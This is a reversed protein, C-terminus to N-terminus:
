EKVCRASYGDPKTNYYEGVFNTWSEMSRYYATGSNRETVTWWYGDKGAHNFSADVGRDGGPLASFGTENTGNSNNYWGRTSKLMRGATEQGGAAAVLRNWDATDPLRWGISQCAAKAADYTYLRGYTNCNSIDDAYCWSGSSAPYNLNEALWMRNDITVTKCSGDTGDTGCNNPEVVVQICRVSLGDSQGAVNENVGDDNGGMLWINATTSSAEETWWCGTGGARAFSGNYSYRRGGPLASFGYDDTGGAPTSSIGNSIWGNQTKLKAAATNQGGVAEFLINWDVIDPLVWGISQCAAKAAPWTYLRGYKACSDASNGYCWSDATKIGLNEAMWTQSGITVTRCEHDGCSLTDVVNGTDSGSPNDNGGGSGAGNDGGCGALGIAAVVVVVWMKFRKM